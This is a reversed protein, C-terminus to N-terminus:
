YLDTDTFLHPPKITLEPDPQEFSPQFLGHNTNFRIESKKTWNKKDLNSSQM